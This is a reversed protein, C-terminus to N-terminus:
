AALKETPTPNKKKLYASLLFLRRETEPFGMLPMNKVNEPQLNKISFYDLKRLANSLQEYELNLHDIAYIDAEFEQNQKQVISWRLSSILFVLGLGMGLFEDGGPTPFFKKATLAILTACILSNGILTSTLAIRKQLHKLKIHALEVLILARIETSTLTNITFQSLFLSYTFPGKGTMFGTLILDILRIKKLDIVWLNPTKIHNKEFLSRIVTKIPLENMPFTPLIKIIHYPALAFNLALGLAMGLTGGILMLATATLDSSDLLTAFWRAILVGFISLFGCIAAAILWSRITRLAINLIPDTTETNPQIVKEIKLQLSIQILICLTITLDCILPFVKRVEDSGLFLIFQFLFIILSFFRVKELEAERDFDPKKIMLDRLGNEFYDLWLVFIVLPIISLVVIAMVGRILIEPDSEM